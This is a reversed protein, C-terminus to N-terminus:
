LSGKRLTKLHLMMEEAFLSLRINNGKLTLKLEKEKRILRAVTELV